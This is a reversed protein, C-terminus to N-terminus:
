ASTCYKPAYRDISLDPADRGSRRHAARGEAEREEDAWRGCGVSGM